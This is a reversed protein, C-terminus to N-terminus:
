IPIIPGSYIATHIQVIFAALSILTLILACLLIPLIMLIADRRNKRQEKVFIYGIFGTIIAGILTWIERYVLEGLENPLADFIHQLGTIFLMALPVAGLISGVAIVCVEIIMLKNAYSWTEKNSQNLLSQKLRLIELSTFLFYAAFLLPYIVALISVIIIGYTGHGIGNLALFLSSGISQLYLGTVTLIFMVGCSILGVPLYAKALDLMYTTKSPKNIRISSADSDDSDEVLIPTTEESLKSTELNYKRILEKLNSRLCSVALTM